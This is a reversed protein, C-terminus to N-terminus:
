PTQSPPSYSLYSPTPTPTDTSTPTGSTDIPHPTASTGIPTHTYRLCRHPPSSIHRVHRYHHNQYNLYRQGHFHKNSALLRPVPLTECHRHSLQSQGQSSTAPGLLQPILSATLSLQWEELWQPTQPSLTLPQCPRVLSGALKPPEMCLAM